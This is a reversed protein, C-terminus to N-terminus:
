SGEKAAPIMVIHLMSGTRMPNADMTTRDTAPRQSHAPKPGTRPGRLRVRHRARTCWGRWVGCCPLPASRREPAYRPAGPPRLRELAAPIDQWSTRRPASWALRHDSLHKLATLPDRPAM